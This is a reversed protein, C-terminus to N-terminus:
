CHVHCCISVKQRGATNDKIQSAGYPFTHRGSDHAERGERLTDGDARHHSVHHSQCRTSRRDKRPRCMPTWIYRRESYSCWCNRCIVSSMQNVVGMTDHGHKINSRTVTKQPTQPANNGSLTTCYDSEQCCALARPARRARPANLCGRHQETVIPPFTLAGPARGPCGGPM